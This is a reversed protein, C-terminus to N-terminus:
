LTFSLSRSPQMAPEESRVALSCITIRPIYICAGCFKALRALALESPNGQWNRKLFDEQDDYGNVESLTPIRVRKGVSRRRLASASSLQM